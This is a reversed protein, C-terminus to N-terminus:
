LRDEARACEVARQQRPLKEQDALFPGCDFGDLMQHAHLRLHRAIRIETQPRPQIVKLGFLHRPEDLPPFEDARRQHSRRDM